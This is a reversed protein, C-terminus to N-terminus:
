NLSITSDGDVLISEALSTPVVIYSFPVLETNKYSLVFGDVPNESMTSLEVM